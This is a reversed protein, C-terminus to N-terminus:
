HEVGDLVVFFGGGVVRGGGIPLNPAAGFGTHGIITKSHRDSLTFAPTLAARTATSSGIRARRVGPALGAPSPPRLGSFPSLQEPLGHVNTGIM